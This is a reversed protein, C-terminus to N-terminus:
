KNEGDHNLLREIDSLKQSTAPNEVSPAAPNLIDEVMTQKGKARETNTHPKAAPIQPEIQQPLVTQETRSSGGGFLSIGLYPSLLLIAAITGVIAIVRNM